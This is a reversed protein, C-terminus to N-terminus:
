TREEYVYKGGRIWSATAGILCMVISFILVEVLGRHFASEILRPLM